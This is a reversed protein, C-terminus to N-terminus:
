ILLNNIKLRRMPILPLKLSKLHRIIKLKIFKWGLVFRLEVIKAYVSYIRYSRIEANLAEYGVVNGVFLALRNLYKQCLYSLM